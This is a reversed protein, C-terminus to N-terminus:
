ARLRGTLLRPATLLSFPSNSPNLPALPSFWSPQSRPGPQLCKWSSFRAPACISACTQSLPRGCVAIVDLLVPRHSTVTKPAPEGCIRIEFRTEVVTQRHGVFACPACTKSDRFEGPACCTSARHERCQTEARRGDIQMSLLLCCTKLSNAHRSSIVSPQSTDTIKFM